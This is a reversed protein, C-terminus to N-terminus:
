SFTLLLDSLKKDKIESPIKILSRLKLLNSKGSIRIEWRLKARKDKTFYIDLPKVINSIGLLNLMKKEGEVFNSKRIEGIKHLISAKKTSTYEKEFKKFIDTIDLSRRWVVSREYSKPYWRIESEDAIIQEIWSVMLNKSSFIFKPIPPNVISKKGKFSTLIELADRCVSPFLVYNPHIKLSMLGFIRIADEKVSNKLQEDEGAYSLVGYSFKKKNGGGTTISGDGSIASLFRAGYENSFKFPLKPNKIGKGQPAGIWIINGKVTEWNFINDLKEQGKILRKMISLKIKPHSNKELKLITKRSVKLEKQIRYKTKFRRLLFKVLNEKFEEKLIICNRNLPLDWAHVVDKLM